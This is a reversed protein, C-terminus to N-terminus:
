TAPCHTCRCGRCVGQPWPIPPDGLTQFAAPHSAIIPLLADAALEVVDRGVDELLLRQMVGELFGALLSRGAVCRLWGGATEAQGSCLQALVGM